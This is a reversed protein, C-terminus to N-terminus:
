LSERTIPDPWRVTCRRLSGQIFVGYSKESAQKGQWLAKLENQPQKWVYERSAAGM